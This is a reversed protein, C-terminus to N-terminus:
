AFSIHSPNQTSKAYAFSFEWPEVHRQLAIRKIALPTWFAMSFMSQSIRKIM